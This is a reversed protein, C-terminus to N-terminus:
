GIWPGRRRDRDFARVRARRTWRRRSARRGAAPSPSGGQRPRRTPRAASGPSGLPRRGSRRGPHVSADDWPSLDPRSRRTEDLTPPRGPDPPLWGDLRHHAGASSVPAELWARNGAARCAPLGSAAVRDVGSCPSTPSSRTRRRRLLAARGPNPLPMTTHCWSPCTSSASGWPTRRGVCARVRTGPGHGDPLHASSPWSCGAMRSAPQRRRVGEARCPRARQVPGGPVVPHESVSLSSRTAASTWGALPRRKRRDLPRRGLRGAVAVPRVGEISRAARM